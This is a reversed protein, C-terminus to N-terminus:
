TYQVSCFIHQCYTSFFYTFTCDISANSNHNESLQSQKGYSLVNFVLRPITKRRSGGSARRSFHARSFQEINEKENMGSLKLDSRIDIVERVIENKEIVYQKSKFKYSLLKNEGRWFTTLLRYNKTCMNEREKKEVGFEEWKRM